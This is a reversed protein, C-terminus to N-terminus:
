VTYYHTLKFNVLNNKFATLFQNINSNTIDIVGEFRRTNDKFLRYVKIKYFNNKYDNGITRLYNNLVIEYKNNKLDSNQKMTEGKWEM